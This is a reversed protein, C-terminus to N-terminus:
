QYPMKVKVDDFGISSTGSGAILVQTIETCYSSLNWTGIGLSSWHWWGGSKKKFWLQLPGNTVKIELLDFVREPTNYDYAYIKIWQSGDHTDVNRPEKVPNVAVCNDGVTKGAQGDPRICFPYSLHYHKYNSTFAPFYGPGNNEKVHVWANGVSQIYFPATAFTYKAQDPIITLALEDDFDVYDTVGASTTRANLSTAPEPFRFADPNESVEGSTPAEGAVPTSVQSVVEQKVDSVPQPLLDENEQTCRAFLSASLALTAGLKLMHQNSTKMTRYPKNQHNTHMPPALTVPRWTITPFRM